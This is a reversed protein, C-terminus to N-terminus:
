EVGKPKGCVTQHRSLHYLRMVDLMVCVSVAQYLSHLSRVNRLEAFWKDDRTLFLSPDLIDELPSPAELAQNRGEIQLEPDDAYFLSGPRIELPNFADEFTCNEVRIAGAACTCIRLSGCANISHLLMRCSLNCCLQCSNVTCLTKTALPPTLIHLVQTNNMAQSQCACVMKFVSTDHDQRRMPARSSVPSSHSRQQVPCWLLLANRVSVQKRVEWIYFDAIQM